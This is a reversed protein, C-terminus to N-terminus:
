NNLLKDFVVTIFCGLLIKITAGPLFPIIGASLVKSWPIFYSLHFGGFILIVLTGLTMFMLSRYWSIQKETIVTNVVLSAILFGYLFGGSAGLLKDFGSAGDAFVPMGLGGIVLYILISLSGWQIGLLYAIVLVALSQGTIPIDFAAIDLNLTLQASLSLIIVAMVTLLFPHSQTQVRM